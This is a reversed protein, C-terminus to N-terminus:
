GELYRGDPLVEDFGGEFGFQADIKGRKIRKVKDDFKKGNEERFAKQCRIPNGSNACFCGYYRTGLRPGLLEFNIFDILPDINRIGQILRYGKQRDEVIPKLISIPKATYFLLEHLHHLDSIPKAKIDPRFNFGDFEDGLYKPKNASMRKEFLEELKPAGLPDPEHFCLIIHAHPDCTADAFSIVKVESVFFAGAILGETSLEKVTGAMWKVLKELRLGARNDDLYKLTFNPNPTLHFFLDGRFYDTDITTMQQSKARAYSCHPCYWRKGCRSGYKRNGNLCCDALKEVIEHGSLILAIMREIYSDKNTHERCFAMPNAAQQRYCLDLLHQQNFNFGSSLTRLEALVHDLESLSQVNASTTSM